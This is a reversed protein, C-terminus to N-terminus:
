CICDMTYFLFWLFITLQNTVHSTRFVHSITEEVYILVGKKILVNKIYLFFLFVDWWWINSLCNLLSFRFLNKLAKSDLFVYFVQANVDWSKCVVDFVVDLFRVRVQIAQHVMQAVKNVVSTLKHARDGPSLEPRYVSSLRFRVCLYLMYTPSLKFQTNAANTDLIVTSLFDNEEAIHFLLTFLIDSMYIFEVSNWYVM